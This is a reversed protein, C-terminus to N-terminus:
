KFKECDMNWGARWKLNQCFSRSIEYGYTFPSFALFGITFYIGLAMCLAWKAAKSPTVVDVVSATLLIGFYLAPFYHHLFLQRGMLFYPLYHLMWGVGLLWCSAM